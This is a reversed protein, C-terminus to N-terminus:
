EGEDDGQSRESEQMRVVDEEEDDCEGKPVSRVSRRGEALKRARM